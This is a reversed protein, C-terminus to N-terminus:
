LYVSVLVASGPTKLQIHVVLDRWRGVVMVCCAIHLLSLYCFCLLFTEIKSKENRTNLLAKALEKGRCEM